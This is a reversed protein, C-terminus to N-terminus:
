TKSQAAVLNVNRDTGGEPKHQRRVDPQIPVCGQQMDPLGRAPCEPRCSANFLKTDLYRVIHRM